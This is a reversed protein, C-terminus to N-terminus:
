KCRAKKGRYFLYIDGIFELKGDDYALACQEPIAYIKTKVERSLSKLEKDLTLGSYKATPSKYHVSIAFDVLGLGEAVDTKPAGGQGKIVVYDKCLALAGASNGIIVKNYKQLLFDAKKDEIRKILLGTDGGPLYILDSANVKETIEPLSDSLEAFDTRRAGLDKFYDSLITKYKDAKVVIEATWPFFLVAPTRGADAVAKKNIERSNRRAIDEGGLFYLKTM